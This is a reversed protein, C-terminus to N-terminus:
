YFNKWPIDLHKGMVDATWRLFVMGEYGDPDEMILKALELCNSESSGNPYFDSYYMNALYTFDGNTFNGKLSIGKSERISQIYKSTWVHKSDNANIFSSVVFDALDDSFHYGHHRIYEMYGKATQLAQLSKDYPMDISLRNDSKSIDTNELGTLKKHSSEPPSTPPVVIWIM